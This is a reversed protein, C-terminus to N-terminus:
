PLRRQLTSASFFDRINLVTGVGLRWQPREAADVGDVALVPVIRFQRIRDYIGPQAAM